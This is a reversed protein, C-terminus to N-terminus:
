RTATWSFPRFMVAAARWSCVGRLGADAPLELKQLLFEPKLQELALATRQGPGGIRALFYNRAGATDQAFHLINAAGGRLQALGVAASQRDCGRMGLRAVHQRRHDAGKPELIRLYAQMQVLACRLLNGFHDCAITDIEGYGRTRLLLKRM